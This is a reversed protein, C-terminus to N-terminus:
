MVKSGSALNRQIVRLPAIECSRGILTGPDIVVHSGIQSFGGIFCGINEKEIYRDDIKMVSKGLLTTVHPFISADKGIVSYSILSHSGITCGDMLVSQRIETFPYVAVNNGISSSPFICSHPGIECDNGIVV